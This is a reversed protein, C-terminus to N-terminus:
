FSVASCAVTSAIVVGGFVGMGVGGGSWGVGGGEGM